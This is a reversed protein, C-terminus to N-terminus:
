IEMSNVKLYLFAILMCHFESKIFRWPCCFNTQLIPSNSFNPKFNCHEVSSPFRSKTRTIPPNWYYIISPELFRSKVKNIIFSSLVEHYIITVYFGNKIPKWYWFWQLLAKLMESLRWRTWSFYPRLLKQECGSILSTNFLSAVEM